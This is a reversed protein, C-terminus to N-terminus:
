FVYKLAFQMIRPEAGTASQNIVGFTPSTLSLSPNGPRLSNTVNFAEARVELRQSERVRFVRSLALDFNFFSPGEINNRGMNGLTGLAPNQFAARNLYALFGQAGSPALKNDAYPSALAQNPRQSGVGSLAVDTGTTVTLFSGSRWAYIGSLRWGSALKNLTPNMFTPMEAVGTLNFIHRRDSTCNARDFRRNNADVIGSNLNPTSGGQTNDGICRSWTYNSNVTMGRSIRRQISVLMGAYQQTGGDDFIDVPGYAAGDTPKLLKLVRRDNLGNNLQTQTATSCPNYTVGQMTCPASPNFTGPNIARSVWLHVAQSGLYSGSVLWNTSLQKQVTLNWNHITNPNMRYPVTLYAGGVPFPANRDFVFPFPNGGPYGRFPDDLGGAPSNIRIDTGWPPAVTSNIFFQGNVFDYSTGFGARVVMSGDGKPDWSLGVRPGFTNWIKYMGSKGPFGPDGPYYLGAPANAFVTSKTANLFRQMDFQFVAGNTITQPLFPEWRLGYNLTLKPTIKWIDQGYLGVYWQKMFLTNPAAQVYTTLRGALFDALSLGTASGDFTFTGPSRVNAYSNSRWHAFNAGVSMQHKGRVLSLDEALQYTTTRFTAESETGGGISFYNNVTFLSYHPMYSFVNIGVDPASFFDKSTRHIATRNVAARISNVTNPGILLTDGLTYSQALNERGGITTALVNDTFAFPPPASYSTAMYRGFLSNRSSKQYDVKGIYQGENPRSIRPVNIKGCPDDTQPLRAAINLAAKSYLSPDIRNNTGYPARLTRPTGANCAASAMATWDGALVAATPVFSISDNPDQRTITGQYGGFFFLKNKVIPGGATGGFQNRKLSDRKTAFYDRANFKYNRVFEFLDGHIENTGSKTVSNVSAGSHMGQAASQSSTELKFEQLADPFPLPLNLNDYPNNHMAGDLVYSIGFSQGGAVSFALGGAQGQMSRSSSNATPLPVAAGGYTILEATNRGNLPLELIRANEIVQGVSTSRTEVLAANAQVEVQETVQGVELIADLVPSANVQLVIGTRVYTRFGPLSVELKYPGVPLNQLVYSGTENSVTSRFVGTDTQTATIEAGPLLAGTQDK